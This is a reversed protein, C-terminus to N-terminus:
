VSTDRLFPLFFYMWQRSYISHVPNSTSGFFYMPKLKTLMAIVVFLQLLRGLNSRIGVTAQELVIFYLLPEVAISWVFLKGIFSFKREFFL